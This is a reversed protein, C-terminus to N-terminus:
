SVKQKIEDVIEALDKIAEIILPIMKEYRVTLYKDDIPAPVVVEPLISQVQQASVGVEKIVEYGLKQATQNAEYYFGDLTLLKDLANEINGLKTKLRDDSYYATINNTARIEGAVESAATGVGLSNIQLNKTTPLIDAFDWSIDATGDIAKSVGSISINREPGWYTTIVNATGDFAAGNITRSNSLKTAAAAIGNLDATINGASFNGSSDRAVTTFAANADTANSQITITTNNSQNASFTGSVEIGIGSANITLAGNGIDLTKSAAGVVHGFTDFTLSQIVTNDSNSINALSSTDAHALGNAQQVLGNGAEVTFVTDDVRIGNGASYTLEGIITTSDITITNDDTYTITTGGSGQFVVTDTGSGSGGADLDLGAGTTQTSAKISYTTDTDTDISQALEDFTISKMVNESADYILLVDSNSISSSTISSLAGTNTNVLDERALPYGGPLAGDHVVVIKKTVDVTLEALSGVFTAHEQTSGRRRKVSAAM